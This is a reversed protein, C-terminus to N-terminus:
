VTTTVSLKGVLRVNTEQLEVPAPTQPPVPLLRVTVNEDKATPEEAVMVSTAVTLPVPPALMEFVADTMEAVVSELEKFSEAVVVVVTEAASRDIPLNSEGSGTFAPSFM